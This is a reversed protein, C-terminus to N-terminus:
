NNKCNYVYYDPSLFLTLRREDKTVGFFAWDNIIRDLKLVGIDRITSALINATASVNAGRIFNDRTIGSGSRCPSARCNGCPPPTVSKLGALIRLLSKLSTPNADADISKFFEAAKSFNGDFITSLKQSVADYLTEALEEHASHQEALNAVDLANGTSIDKNRISRLTEKKLLEINYKDALYYTECLIDIDYSSVDTLKNYIFEIMVEFAEKSADKIEVSGDDTIGGYFGTKFVDSVLALILKHARIESVVGGKKFLFKIDTPLGATLSLSQQVSSLLLNATM